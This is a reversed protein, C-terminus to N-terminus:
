LHVRCAGNVYRPIEAKILFGGIKRYLSSNREKFTFLIASIKKTINDSFFKSPSFGLYVETKFLGKLRDKKM